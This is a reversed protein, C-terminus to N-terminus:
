WKAMEIIHEKLLKQIKYYKPCDKDLYKTVHNFIETPLDTYAPIEFSQSHSVPCLWLMYAYIDMTIEPHWEETLESKSCDECKHNEETYECVDEGYYIGKNFENYYQCNSLKLPEVNFFKYINENICM